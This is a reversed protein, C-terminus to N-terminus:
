EDDVGDPGATAGFLISAVGEGGEAKVWGGEDEVGDRDPKTTM